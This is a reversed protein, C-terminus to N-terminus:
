RTITKQIDTEFFRGSGRFIQLNSLNDNVVFQLEDGDSGKLLVPSIFDIGFKILVNVGDDLENHIRMGRFSMIDGLTSISRLLNFGEQNRYGLTTSPSLATLGFFQNYTKWADSPSANVLLFDVGSLFGEQNISPGMSFTVGGGTEEVNIIDLFYAPTGAGTNKFTTILIEDVTETSLGFDGKPILFHQWANFQSINVYNSLGVSNGTNIANNVFQLEVEKNGVPWSTIYIWGTVSSFNALSIDASPHVFSAQGNNGSLTGDVSKTGNKAQTTSAFDWTGVNATATWLVADTGDHIGEPTGSVAGNINMETGFDDNVFELTQIQLDRLPTTYVIPGNGDARPNVVNTVRGDEGRIEIPLAM